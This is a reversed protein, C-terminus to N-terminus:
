TQLNLLPKHDTYVVTRKGDLYCQWSQCAKYIALFEKDFIPWNCKMPSYKTSFYEVPHLQGNTEQLLVAGVLDNCADM